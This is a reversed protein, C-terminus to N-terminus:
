SHSGGFGSMAIANFFQFDCHQASQNEWCSRRWKIMNQRVYLKSRKEASANYKEKQNEKFGLVYANNHRLPLGGDCAASFCLRRTNFAEIRYFGADEIFGIGSSTDNFVVLRMGTREWWQRNMAYYNKIEGCDFLGAILHRVCSIEDASVYRMRTFIREHTESERALLYASFKSLYKNRKKKYLARM